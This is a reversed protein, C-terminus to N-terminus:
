ALKSLVKINSDLLNFINLYYDLSTFIEDDYKNTKPDFSAQLDKNEIVEQIITFDLKFLSLYNQLIEDLLCALKSDQEKYSYILIKFTKSETYFIGNNQLAKITSVITKVKELYEETTEITINRGQLAYYLYKDKINMNDVEKKTYTVQSSFSLTGEVFKFEKVEGFSYNNLEWENLNQYGRGFGTMLCIDNYKQIFTTKSLTFISLNYSNSIEFNTGACIVLIPIQLNILKIFLDKTLTDILFIKYNSGYIQGSLYRSKLKYYKHKILLNHKSEVIEVNCYNSVEDIIKHLFPDENEKSFLKEIHQKKIIAKPLNSANYYWNLSDAVKKFDYQQLQSPETVKNLITELSILYLIPNICINERFNQIQTLTFNVGFNYETTNDTKCNLLQNINNIYNIHDKNLIINRDNGFMIKFLNITDFVGKKFQAFNKSIQIM